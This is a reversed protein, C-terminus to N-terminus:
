YKGSKVVLWILILGLSCGVAFVTLGIITMGWMLPGKDALLLFSSGVILAAIVLGVAIRNSSWNLEGVLFDFGQRGLDISFRGTTMAKLLEEVELPLRRAVDGSPRCRRRDTIGLCLHVHSLQLLLTRDSCKREASYAAMEPPKHSGSARAKRDFRLMQFWTPSFASSPQLRAVERRTRTPVSESGSGNKLPCHADGHGDEYGAANEPPFHGEPDDIWM